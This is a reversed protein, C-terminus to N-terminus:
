RWLEGASLLYNLIPPDSVNGGEIADFLRAELNERTVRGALIRRGLSVAQAQQAQTFEAPFQPFSEEQAPAKVFANSEENYLFGAEANMAVNQREAELYNDSARTAGAPIDAGEALQKVFFASERGDGICIWNQQIKRTFNRNGYGYAM